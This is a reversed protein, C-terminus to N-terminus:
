AREDPGGITRLHEAVGTVSLLREVQQSSHTIALEQGRESCLKRAALIVRLGTSDIFQLDQLDLVVMGGEALDAGEIARQLLPASAMDLEGGLAIVVRDPERREDIRLQEIVGM